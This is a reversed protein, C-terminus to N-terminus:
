TLFSVRSGLAKSLIARGDVTHSPLLGALPETNVVVNRSNVTAGCSAIPAVNLTVSSPTITYTGANSVFVEDVSVTDNLVGHCSGSGPTGSAAFASFRTDTAQFSLTVNSSVTALVGTNADALLTAGPGASATASITAAHCVLAGGALVLFRVLFL